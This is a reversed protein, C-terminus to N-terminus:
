DCGLCLTAPLEGSTVTAEKRIEEGGSVIPEEFLVPHDEQSPGTVPTALAVVGFVEPM